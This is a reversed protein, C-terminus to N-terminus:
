NLMEILIDYFIKETIKKNRKEYPSEYVSHNDM